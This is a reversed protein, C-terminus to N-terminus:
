VLGHLPGGPAGLADIRATIEPDEELPPAMYSKLRADILLPAECSWHKRNMRSAAGYLDFAPDSRTFALWLFNDFNRVCFDVDDVVVILPYQERKKWLLLEEALIELLRDQMGRDSVHKPGQIAVIGPAVLRPDRFVEPLPIDTPAETGLMRRQTGAAAWILKSGEHLAAGTYDLTDTPTRTIFHLDRQFDTRELIHSIFAIPDHASLQPSDERAAVLVYKALSTQTGGLTQLGCTILERPCREVEYHTYRESGLVLLLPHVGAADVANVEHVGSFVQPVLDRTLEHIFAGLLSDEQPPRGVSTFPWIADRRHYVAQVKVVPFDHQLSYYGVHDGFPGEPKLSPLIYGSICFDAEAPAPLSWDPVPAMALKRGGLLGAFSLETLGEPLPMVAAITLAPPGGVFINVPLPEGKGLACMHHRGIGRHLQYHLGVEDDAYSNGGLQVRYMGLNSMGYGPVDPHETYVLPLTIFPGGDGPWSVLRPLDAVSATCSFVNGSKVTKPTFRGSARLLSFLSFPKKLLKEPHAKATFVKEVTKLSDRFIYQIRERTGYLNALMPFSTGKPNTFLLAPAQLRFARRQIAPLELCPDVPETVRILQGCKELDAVCEALTQYGM